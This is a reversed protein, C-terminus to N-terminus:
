KRMVEVHLSKGCLPNSIASHRITLSRKRTRMLMELYRWETFEIVAERKKEDHKIRKVIQNLNCHTSVGSVGRDHLVALIFSTIQDSSVEPLYKLIGIFPSKKSAYCFEKEHREALSIQKMSEMQCFAKLVRQSSDSSELFLLMSVPKHTM